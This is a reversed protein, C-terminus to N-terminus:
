LGIRQRIASVPRRLLYYGLSVRNGFIQATGRTGIRPAPAGATTELEARVPYALGQERTQEVLYGSSVIRASLPKLPDADLFLRVDGGGELAATDGPALEIRLEVKAPDAIQMIWQGTSVPRGKWEDKNNFIALGSAPARVLARELRAAALDRRATEAALEAQAIAMERRLEPSAIAGQRARQFRAGAVEAARAAIEFEGRMGTDVFGALPMDKEVWANPEVRIESLVGDIPATVPFADRAVIEAPSLVTLPVPVFLAALGAMAGAALVPRSALRAVLNARRPGAFLDLGHGVALGIRAAIVADAEPWPKEATLLLWARVPASPRALPILFGHPFGYDGNELALGSLNVAAPQRTDAQVAICAAIREELMAILPADPDIASVSSAHVIRPARRRALRTKTEIFFAQRAPLLKCVENACMFALATRDPALRIDNEFALLLEIRGRQPDAAGGSGRGGDVPRATATQATGAVTAIPPHPRVAALRRAPDFANM